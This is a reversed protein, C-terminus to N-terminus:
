RDIMLEVDIYPGEEDRADNIEPAEFEFEDSVEEDEFSEGSGGCASGEFGAPLGACGVACVLEALYEGPADYLSVRPPPSPETSRRRAIKEMVMETKLDMERKRELELQLLEDDEEEEELTGARKQYQPEAERASKKAKQEEPSAKGKLQLGGLMRNYTAGIRSGGPTTPTPPGDSLSRRGVPPPPDGCPEVRMGKLTRWGRPPAGTSPAKPRGWADRAAPSHAAEPDPAYEEPAASVDEAEGRVMEPEAFAHESAVEGSRMRIPPKFRGASMTGERSIDEM